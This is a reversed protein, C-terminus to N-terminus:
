RRPNGRNDTDHQTVRGSGHDTSHVRSVDGRNEDWSTHRGRRWDTHHVSGDQNLRSSGGDGDGSEYPGPRDGPGRGRQAM